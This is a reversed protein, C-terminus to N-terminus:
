PDPCLGDVDDVPAALTVTRAVTLVVDGAPVSVRLTATRGDLASPEVAAPVVVPLVGLPGEHPECGVYYPVEAAFFHGSPGVELDAVDVEVTFILTEDAPAWGGLAPYLGFMRQGACELPVVVGDILPEGGLVHLELFPAPARADFGHCLRVPEGTTGGSTGDVMVAGTSAGAPEGTTAAITTAGEIETTVGGDGACAGVVALLSVVTVRRMDALYGSM